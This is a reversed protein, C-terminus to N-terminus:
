GGGKPKRGSPKPTHQANVLEIAETTATSVPVDDPIAPSVVVRRAWGGEVLYAGIGFLEPADEAYLGPLIRRNGINVGGYNVLVEIM